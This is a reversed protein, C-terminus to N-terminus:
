ISNNIVITCKMGHPQNVEFKLAANDGYFLNLRQKINALGIGKSNALSDVSTLPGDDSVQLYLKADDLSKATISITTAHTANSVGHKISNELLPQILFSPFMVNEVQESVDWKVELRKGFRIKEVELYMKMVEFDKKLTMKQDPSIELTFRLFGSLKALVENTKEGDGSLALNSAANLSNFLFHPNLQYRLLQLQSREKDTEATAVAKVQEILRFHLRISLYFASWVAFYFFSYAYFSLLRRLNLGDSFVQEFIHPFIYYWIVMRKMGTWLVAFVLCAILCISLFGIVNLHETRKYIGRLALTFILGSVGHVTFVIIVSLLPQPDRLNYLINDAISIVVFASWGCLQLVWFLKNRPMTTLSNLNM